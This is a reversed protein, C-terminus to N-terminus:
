GARPRRADDQLLRLALGSDQEFSEVMGDTQSEVV